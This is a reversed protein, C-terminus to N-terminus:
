MIKYGIDMICIIFYECRIEEHKEQVSKTNRSTIHRKKSTDHGAWIDLNSIACLNRLVGKYVIYACFILQPCTIFQITRRNNIQEYLGAWM